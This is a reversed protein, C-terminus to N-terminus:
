GVPLFPTVVASWHTANSGPAKELNHLEATALLARQSATPPMSASKPLPQQFAGALENSLNLCKGAARQM